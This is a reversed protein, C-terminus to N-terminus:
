RVFPGPRLDTRFKCRFLRHRALVAQEIMRIVYEHAQSRISDVAAEHADQMAHLLSKLAEIDDPLVAPLVFEPLVIEPPLLPPLSPSELSAFSM